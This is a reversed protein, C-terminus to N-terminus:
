AMFQLASFEAARLGTTMVRRDEVMSTGAEFRTVIRTKKLPERKGKHKDEAVYM